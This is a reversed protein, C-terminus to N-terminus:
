KNLIYEYTGTTQYIIFKGATKNINYTGYQVLSGNGTQIYVTNNELLVPVNSFKGYTDVMEVFYKGNYYYGNMVVITGSTGNTGSMTGQSELYESDIVNQTKQVVPTPDENKDKKCSFMSVLFLIAITLKLTKM